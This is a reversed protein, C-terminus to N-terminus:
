MSLNKDDGFDDGYQKKLQDLMWQEEDKQKDSNSREEAERREEEAIWDLTEQVREDEIRDDEQEAFMDAAKQREIKDFYEYMLEYVHYSDLMPDKLPRNYTKSWWSRLFLELSELSSNYKIATNAAIKQICDSM